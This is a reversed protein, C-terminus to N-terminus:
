EIKWSPPVDKTVNAAIWQGTTGAVSSVSNITSGPAVTGTNGQAGKITVKRKARVGGDDLVELVDGIKM